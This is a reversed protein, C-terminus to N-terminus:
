HSFEKIKILVMKGDRTDEFYIQSEDIADAITDTKFNNLNNTKVQLTLDKM